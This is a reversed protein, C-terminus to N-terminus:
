RNYTMKDVTVDIGKEVAPQQEVLVERPYIGDYGGGCATLSLSLTLVSIWKM